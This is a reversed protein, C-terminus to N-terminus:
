FKVGASKLLLANPLAYRTDAFRMGPKIEQNSKEEMLSCAPKPRTSPKTQALQCLTQLCSLVIAAM